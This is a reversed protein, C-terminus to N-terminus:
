ARRPLDQAGAGVDLTELREAARLLRPPVDSGPHLAFAIEARLLEVRIRRLEDLPGAEVAALLELAADPAGARHKAQAAALM